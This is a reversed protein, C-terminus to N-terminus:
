KLRPALIRLVNMIPMKRYDMMSKFLPLSQDNLIVDLFEIMIKTDNFLKHSKLLEICNSNFENEGKLEELRQLIRTLIIEEDFEQKNESELDFCDTIDFYYNEVQTIIVDDTTQVTEIKLKDIKREKNM